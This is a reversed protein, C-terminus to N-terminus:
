TIILTLEDSWPGPELRPNVWAGALFVRKGADDREFRLTARLRTSIVTQYRAEGEIKYRLMFGYHRAPAVSATPHGHEPRAARATISGNGQGTSLVLQQTPRPLPQRSHRERSRLVMALIAADPVALSAELYDIFPGIFRKLEGFALKKVAATTRNKTAPDSNAEYAANAETLLGNFTALRGADLQWETSHGVCTHYINNTQALFERDPRKTLSAM